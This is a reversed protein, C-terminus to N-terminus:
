FFFFFFHAKSCYKCCVHRVAQTNTSQDLFPPPSQQERAPSPQAPHLGQLPAAPLFGSVTSAGRPGGSQLRDASGPRGEGRVMCLIYEPFDTPSQLWFGASACEIWSIVPSDGSPLSGRKAERTLKPSLLCRSPPAALYALPYLGSLSRMRHKRSAKGGRCRDGFRILYSSAGMQLAM